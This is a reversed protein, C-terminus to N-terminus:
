IYRFFLEKDRRVKAVKALWDSEHRYGLPLVLTATLGQEDLGLIENYKAPVFGEMPTADVKAVAAAVLATGLAIYTQKSTWATFEAETRSSLSNVMMAKYENLSEAPIGRKTAIDAVLADVKAPDFTKWAAFVILHSCDAIQSQNYSAPVLKNKVEQDTIVLVNYPQFGYSSATLHIAELIEEVKEAEVKQGNMKKTAYRWKM